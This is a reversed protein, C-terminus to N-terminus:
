GKDAGVAKRHFVDKLYAMEPCRFLFTCAAYVLAGGGIAGGLYLLKTLFQEHGTWDVQSEVLHCFVGMGLAAVVAKVLSPVIVSLGLSGIKRRLFILLLSLNVTSAMSLALALGGHRLPHMLIM